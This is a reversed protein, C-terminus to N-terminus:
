KARKVPVKIDFRGTYKIDTGWIELNAKGTKSTEDSFWYKYDVGYTLLYIEKEEDTLHKLASVKIKYVKVTPYEYGNKTTIYDPIIEVYDKTLIKLEGTETVKFTIKKKAAKLNNTAAAKITVTATGGDVATVICNHASDRKVKIVDTNSSSYTFVGVNTTATMAAQSIKATKGKVITTKDTTVKINQAAENIKFTKTVSGTYKSGKAKITVKATGVNKNNKYTVTYDTGKKLKKGAVKVVVTPKLASGTYTYKTKSLTVNSKKIPTSAAKVNIKLTKSVSDYNDSGDFKITIKGTGVKIGIIDYMTYGGETEEEDVHYPEGIAIYENGKLELTGVNYGATEKGDPIELVAKGDDIVISSKSLTAEVSQPQKTIYYEYRKTGHYDGIGEFIAYAPDNEDHVGVNNTFSLDYDTGYKLAKGNIIVKINYNEVYDAYGGTGYDEQPCPQSGLVYLDPVNRLVANEIDYNDYSGAFATAPIMMLALIASLIIILSRKSFKRM